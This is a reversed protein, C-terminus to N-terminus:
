VFSHFARSLQISAKCNNAPWVQIDQRVILQNNEKWDRVGDRHVCLHSKTSSQYVIKESIISWHKHSLAVYDRTLCFGNSPKPFFGVQRNFEGATWWVNDVLSHKKRNKSWVLKESPNLSSTVLSLNKHYFWCKQSLKFSTQTIDNAFRSYVVNRLTKLNFLYLFSVQFDNAIIDSENMQHYSPISCTSQIEKGSHLTELSLAWSAM